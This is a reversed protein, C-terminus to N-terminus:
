SRRVLDVSSLALSEPTLVSRRVFETVSLGVLRARCQLEAREEPTLRLPVRLRRPNESPQPGPRRRHTM